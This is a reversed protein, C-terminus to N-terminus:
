FIYLNLLHRYLIIVKTCTKAPDESLPQTQINICLNNFTMRTLTHEFPDLCPKVTVM